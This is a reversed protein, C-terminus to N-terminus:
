AGRAPGERYRVRADGLADALPGLWPEYHRWQHLGDRFLPQRVQQSSATSVNRKSLHFDICSREFPLECFELIRRVSTEIDQVVDEHWVHLV